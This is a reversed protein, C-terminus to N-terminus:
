VGAAAMKRMNHGIFYLGWEIKVKELGRLLFRRVGFNGKIGGFVSEVEVPRKSRMVKGKESDLNARAKKKLENLRRNIYIRRDAEPSDAKICKQRHPCGECGECEYVRVTSTATTAKKGNRMCFSLVGACGAYTNTMKKTTVGTRM